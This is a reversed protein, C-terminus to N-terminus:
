GGCPMYVSRALLACSFALPYILPPATSTGFRNATTRKEYCVKMVDCVATTLAKKSVSDRLKKLSEEHKSCVHVKAGADLLRKSLAAGM